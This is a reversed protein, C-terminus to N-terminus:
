NILACRFVSSFRVRRRRSHQAPIVILFCFLRPLTKARVQFNWPLSINEDEQPPGEEYPPSKVSSNLKPSRKFKFFGAVKDKKSHSSSSSQSQPATEGPSFSVASASSSVLSMSSSSPDAGPSTRRAYQSQYPPSLPSNPMSYSDPSLNGVSRNNSYYHDKPPLPPPKLTDKDRSTKFLKLTSFRSSKSNLISSSSSSAM